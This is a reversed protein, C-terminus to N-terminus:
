GKVLELWYPGPKSWYFLLLPKHEQILKWKGYLLVEILSKINLGLFFTNYKGIEGNNRVNNKWPAIHYSQVIVLQRKEEHLARHPDQIEETKTDTWRCHKTHPYQQLVLRRRVDSTDCASGSFNLCKTSWGNRENEHTIVAVSLNTLKCIPLDSWSMASNRGITKM